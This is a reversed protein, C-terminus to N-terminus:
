PTTAAGDGQDDESWVERSISIGLARIKGRL